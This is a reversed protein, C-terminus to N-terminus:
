YYDIQQSIKLFLKRTKHMLQTKDDTDFARYISVCLTVIFTSNFLHHPTATLSMELVSVSIGM